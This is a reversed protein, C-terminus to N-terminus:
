PLSGVPLIGGGAVCPPVECVVPGQYRVIGNRRVTYQYSAAETGDDDSQLVLRSRPPLGRAVGRRPWYAEGDITPSSCVWGGRSAGCTEKGSPTVIEIDWVAIDEATAGIRNVEVWRPFCAREVPLPGSSSVVCAHSSLAFVMFM